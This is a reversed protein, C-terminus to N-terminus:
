VMLKRSRYGNIMDGYQGPPAPRSPLADLAFEAISRTQEMNATRGWHSGPAMPTGERGSVPGQRVTGPLGRRGPVPRRVWTVVELQYGEGLGLVHGTEHSIVYHNLDLENVVMVGSRYYPDPEMGQHGHCKFVHGGRPMRRGRACVVINIDRREAITNLEQAISRSSPGSGVRDPSFRNIVRQTNSSSFGQEASLEFHVKFRRNGVTVVPPSM